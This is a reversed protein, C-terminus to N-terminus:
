LVRLRLFRESACICGSGSLRWCARSLMCDLRSVKSALSQTGVRSSTMAARSARSARAAPASVVERTSCGTDPVDLVRALRREVFRVALFFTLSGLRVEVEEDEEAVRLTRRM